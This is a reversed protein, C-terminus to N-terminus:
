DQKLRKTKINKNSITGIINENSLELIKNEDVYSELYEYLEDLSSTIKMTKTGENDIYEYQVNFKNIGYKRIILKIEKDYDEYFQKFVEFQEKTITNTEPMKFYLAGTYLPIGNENRGKYDYTIRSTLFKKTCEQYLKNIEQESKIQGGTLIDKMVRAFAVRHTGLGYGSNYGIIYQNNTIVLFAGYDNNTTNNIFELFDFNDILPKLDYNYYFGDGNKRGYYAEYALSKLRNLEEIKDM